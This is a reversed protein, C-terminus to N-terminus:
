HASVHFRLYTIIRIELAKTYIKASYIYNRCIVNNKSYRQLVMVEIFISTIGFM